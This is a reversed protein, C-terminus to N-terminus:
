LNKLFPPTRSSCCSSGWVESHPRHRGRLCSSLGSAWALGPAGTWPRVGRGFMRLGLSWSQNVPLRVSPPLFIDKSPVLPM